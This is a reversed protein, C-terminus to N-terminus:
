YSLQVSIRESLFSKVERLFQFIFLVEKNQKIFLVKSLLNRKKHFRSNGVNTVNMFMVAENEKFMKSMKTVPTGSDQNILTVNGSDQKKIDGFRADSEFYCDRFENGNEELIGFGQRFSVGFGPNRFGM